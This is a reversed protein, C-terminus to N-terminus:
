GRRRGDDPVQAPRVGRGRGIRRQRFLVPGPSTLKIAAAICLLLPSLVLLGLGAGIVDMGRKLAESSKTLGYRHVGLLTLGDIHDMEVSSGVVEFLRPLVSVKVGTHKVKRIVDLIEDSDTHEPAVVVRHVDHEVLLRDLSDFDGLISPAAGNVENDALPVRGVVVAKISPSMTFKREIGKAAVASGVVLCREPPSIRRVTRRALARGGLMMLFLLLWLALMQSRGLFGERHILLSDALWILLTYLTAVQFIAPAEDLTTKRLLNEDRDYLGVLKGVLVVLPLAALISLKM